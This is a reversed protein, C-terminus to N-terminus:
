NSTVKGLHYLSQFPKPFPPYSLTVTISNYFCDVMSSLAVPWDMHWLLGMGEPDFKCRELRKWNSSIAAGVATMVFRPGFSNSNFFRNFRSNTSDMFYAIVVGLIALLVLAFGLDGIVDWLRTHTNAKSSSEQEEMPAVLQSQSFRMHTPTQQMSAQSFRVSFRTPFTPSQITPSHAFKEPDQEQIQHDTLAGSLVPAFAPDEILSPMPVLAYHWHGDTDLYDQLRYRKHGLQKQLDEISAETNINRFDDLLDPHNMLSAVAAISSPNTLVGTRSHWIMWAITLTMIAIFSLLGQLVRLVTVNVSLRPPWCPHLTDRFDPTECKYTSDLFFVESSLPGLVIVAVYTISTWLILWHGRVFRALATFTLNSSLYYSFLTDKALAGEPKSLHIFPEIIKV